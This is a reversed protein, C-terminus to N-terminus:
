DTAAEILASLVRDAGFHREAIARAARRHQEYDENITDIADVAGAVDDFALVGEGVPLWDALGTDQVCVPRGSALYCVSRDSFWGGRTAVYGQKAVGFEARSNAIFRRYDAQSRTARWGNCVEWGYGALRVPDGGTIALQLPQATKSPLDAFRSFEQEKQGYRTGGNGVRGYRHAKGFSRWQLIASFRSAEGADAM